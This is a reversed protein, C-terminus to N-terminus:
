RSVLSREIENRTSGSGASAVATTARTKDVARRVRRDARASWQRLRSARDGRDRTSDARRHSALTSSRARLSAAVGPSPRRRSAVNSSSPFGYPTTIQADPAFPESRRPVSAVCIERREAIQRYPQRDHRREGDACAVFDVRKGATIDPQRASPQSCSPAPAVSVTARTSSPAASPVWRRVRRPPRTNRPRAVRTVPCFQLARPASIAGPFTPVM